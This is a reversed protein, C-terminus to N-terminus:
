HSTPNSYFNETRYQSALNEINAYISPIKNFKTQNANLDAIEINKLANKLDFNYTIGQEILVNLQTDNFFVQWPILSINVSDHPLLSERVNYSEPVDVQSSYTNKLSTCSTLGASLVGIFIYNTINNKKKMLSKQNLINM